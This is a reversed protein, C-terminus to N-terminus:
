IKKYILLLAKQGNFIDKYDDVNKYYEKNYVYWCHDFFNKCYANYENINNKNLVCLLEYKIKVNSVKLVLNEKFHIDRDHSPDKERNLNIILITNNLGIIMNNIKFLQEIGCIDCKEVVDINDNLLFGFNENLSLDKFLPNKVLSNTDRKQIYLNIIPMQMCSYSEAYNECTKKIQYNVFFMESIKTKNKKITEQFNNFVDEKVYKNVKNNNNNIINNFNLEKNLQLLIFSIINGPDQSSYKKKDLKILLNHIKNPRYNNKNLWLNNFLEVLLAFINDKLKIKELLENKEYGLCFSVLPEINSLCILVLNVLYNTNNEYVLNTCIKNMKSKIDDTKITKILQEINKIIQKEHLDLKNDLEKFSNEFKSNLLDVFNKKLENEWLQNIEKDIENENEIEKDLNNKM